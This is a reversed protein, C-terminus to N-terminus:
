ANATSSVYESWSGKPFMRVRNRLSTYYLINNLIIVPPYFNQTYQKGIFSGCVTHYDPKTCGEATIVGEFDVYEEVLKDGFRELVVVGGTVDPLIVQGM